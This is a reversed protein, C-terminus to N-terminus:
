VSQLPFVVDESITPRQWRVIKDGNVGFIEGSIHENQVLKLTFEAVAMPSGLKWFDPLEEGKADAKKQAREIYPRTMDTVASPSIANVQINDKALEKALTWTMGLLAAKAASYNTQGINGELGSLSTMNIIHGRKKERKLAEVFPKTCYFAGNVHVNIVDYFDKASMNWIFNDRIFGANNILIDVQGFESMALDVLKEGIQPEEVPGALGVAKGGMETLQKVTEEVSEESRSNIVVRIGNQVFVEAISRGIGKTSGTIIAVKEISM